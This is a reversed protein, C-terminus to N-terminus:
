LFIHPHMVIEDRFELSPQKIRKYTHCKVNEAFGDVIFSIM